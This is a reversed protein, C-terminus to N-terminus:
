ECLGFGPIVEPRWLNKVQIVPLLFFHADFCITRQKIEESQIYPNFAEFDAFPFGPYNSIKDEISDTIM